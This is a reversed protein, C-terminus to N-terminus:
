CCPSHVHLYSVFSLSFLTLLFVLSSYLSNHKKKKRHSKKKSLFLPVVVFSVLYKGFFLNFVFFFLLINKFIMCSFAFEFAFISSVWSFCSNWFHDFSYWHYNKFSKDLFLVVIKKLPGFLFQYFFILFLLTLFRENHTFCQVFLSHPRRLPSFVLSSVGFFPSNLFLSLIEDLFISWLFKQIKQTLFLYPSSSSCPLSSTHFSFLSWSCFLSFCLSTLCFSSVCFRRHLFFLVLFCSISFYLFFLFLLSFCFPIFLLIFPFLSCLFCHHNFILFFTSLFCTFCFFPRFLFLVHLYKPQIKLPKLHLSLSSNLCCILITSFYFPNKRVCCTKSVLFVSVSFLICNKSWKWYSCRKEISWFLTYFLSVTNLLHLLFFLLSICFSFDNKLVCFFGFM